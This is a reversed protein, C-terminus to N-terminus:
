YEGRVCNRGSRKAEYLARDAREKLRETEGARGDSIVTCFGASITVVGEPLESMTHIIAAQRIIKVVREALLRAEPASTFPLIIAFEEGGYRAVLDAQRQMVSRLLGGVKKLCMDGAVHGFTDNYRKFFDIDIMILSLPEGSKRSRELGQDLVIDFQRRNALGTLGDVLALSQLTHNITTLEDRVQTLEVQNRVNSRVQKLIFMGMGTMLILLVLNLVADTLNTSIWERQVRDYDYGATVVLPYQELRAYGYIREMGDLASRWIASGSASNKLATKFLPSSSLSKNIVSDPLPRIYLVSTDALILGLVDRDGLTYYSYFQRFYGVRVTALVVGAFNGAGDSLRMSVPIVQEGTSRSTIVHGIHVSADTHNQHWIFYERDSNSARAPSYSGSTAVWKGQTDYIFLGHLQSLKGHKEKLQRSFEATRVYGPAGQTIQRVVDTLTIDVQLFTDEAQKALSLSLNRADDERESLRHQWSNWLSWGNIGTVALATLLLFASMNRGLSTRILSSSFIGSHKDLTQNGAM